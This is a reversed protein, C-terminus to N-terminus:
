APESAAVFVATTRGPVAIRRSGHDFGAGRVRADASGRQVPHLTWGSAVTVDTAVEVREPAANFVILLDPEDGGDLEMVVLGPAADVGTRHFRIRRGIEEATTMRFASSSARIRLLERLHAANAAIHDPGPAPRGELVERHVDWSPANETEPPLGVGFNNDHGTWDLRNFWDGSGYSNRDLSKSRLLDSGAHFLAIGQSLAVTSLALNQMRVREDVPLEAPAKLQIVDFLTENDHNSVYVVNDKPSAGYAEHEEGLVVEGDPQEIAFGALNGALGLMLRLNAWRAVEAQAELSRGDTDAPATGLGTAFGQERLGGFPHGGRVVDRLRDNFTGIGTGAMNHQTAQEFRRDDIVEGFNWGEGYLLIASGDVGDDALTLQDLAERVALMTSRPHHGMLDFRFGDVKYHRAWDVVSDLILKSMMRHEAATNPSSTSTEVQGRDDLRHYYGPVIRDLVSCPDLGAAHTHNYVVDKVVRLGLGNLAAVMERFEVIRAPGDPDTAYSGEPVTFHFPDYGWNFPDLEGTAQQIRQPEESAPDEARIVERDPMDPEVRDDPDEPITAIDNTPLLHLHTLGAEALQRLHAFGHSGEETFARFTGVHAEPVSPDASSFDRVHLEYVTPFGDFPPKTLADWGDPALDAAALDILQSRASGMSLAHSYPDTVVNTEVQGTGPMFVEVEVLYYARDWDAAGVVEWVGSDDDRTLAASGVADDLRREPDAPRSATFRHLTVSRATPAWLRLTPVHGAWSVGLEAADAADGYLDDLVGPIQVGTAAVLTGEGDTVAVVLQGRVLAKVQDNTVDEPLRLAIADALHRWGGDIAEPALGGQEVALRLTAEAGTVAGDETLVELNGEASAHM